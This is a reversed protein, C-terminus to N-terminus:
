ATHVEGHCRTHTSSPTEHNKPHHTSLCSNAAPRSVQLEATDLISRPTSQLKLQPIAPSVRGGGTPGGGVASAGGEKNEKDGVHISSGGGGGGHGAGGAGGGATKQSLAQRMSSASAPMALPKGEGEAPRNPGKDPVDPRNSPAERVGASDQLALHSPVSKGITDTNPRLGVMLMPTENKKSKWSASAGGEKDPEGQSPGVGGGGKKNADGSNLRQLQKTPHCLGEVIVGGGGGGPNGNTSNVVPSSEDENGAEGVLSLRRRVATSANSGAALSQGPNVTEGPPPLSATSGGAVELGALGLAKRKKAADADDGHLPLKVVWTSGNQVAGNKDVGIKRKFWGFCKSM